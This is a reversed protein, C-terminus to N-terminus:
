PALTCSDVLRGNDLVCVPTVCKNSSCVRGGSCSGCDISQGCTVSAGCEAGLQACTQRQCNGPITQCERGNSPTRSCCVQDSTSAQCPDNACKAGCQITKSKGCKDFVQLEGCQYQNASCLEQDTEGVCGGDAPGSGGGQAPGLGVYSEKSEKLGDFQICGAGCCLVVSVGVALGIARSSRFWKPLLAITMLM